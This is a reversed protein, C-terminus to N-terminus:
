SAHSCNCWLVYKAPFGNRDDQHLTLRALCSNPAIRCIKARYVRQCLVRREAWQPDGYVLASAGASTMSVRRPRRWGRVYVTLVECDRDRSLTMVYATIM